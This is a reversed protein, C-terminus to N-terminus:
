GGGIRVVRRLGDPLPVDYGILCFQDLAFLVVSEFRKGQASQAEKLWSATADGIGVLHSRKSAAFGLSEGFEMTAEGKDLNRGLTFGFSETKLCALTSRCDAGPAFNTMPLVCAIVALLRKAVEDFAVSEGNLAAVQEVTAGLRPRHSPDTVGDM